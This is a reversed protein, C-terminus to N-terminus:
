RRGEELMRVTDALLEDIEDAREFNPRMADVSVDFDSGGYTGSIPERFYRGLAASPSEGLDRRRAVRDEESIRSYGSGSVEDSAALFAESYLRIRLSAEEARLAVRRLTERFVDLDIEVNVIEDSFRIPGFDFAAEPEHDERSM